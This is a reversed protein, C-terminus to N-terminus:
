FKLDTLKPENVGGYFDSEGHCVVLYRRRADDLKFNYHLADGPIRLGAMSM